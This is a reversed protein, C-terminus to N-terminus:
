QQLHALAIRIDFYGMDAKDADDLARVLMAKCQDKGGQLLMWRALFYWPGWPDPDTRQLAEGPTLQGAFLSVVPGFEDSVKTRKINKKLEEQAGAADAVARLLFLRLAVDPSKIGRELALRYDSLALDANGLEERAKGRQQLVLSAFPDVKLAEDYDAIARVYDGSAYFTDGRDSWAIASRQDRRILSSFDSSANTFDGLARYAIARKRILDTPPDSRDGVIANYERVENAYDRKDAFIGARMMHAQWSSIGDYEPLVKALDEIAQDPEDRVHLRGIELLATALPWGRPHLALASKFDALAKSPDNMEYYRGRGLYAAILDDGCNIARNYDVLAAQADRREELLRARDLFIRTRCGASELAEQYRELAENSQGIAASIQAGLWYIQALAFRDLKEKVSAVPYLAERLCESKAIALCKWLRATSIDIADEGLQESQDLDDKAGRDGLALRALGRGLYGQPKRPRQRVAENFDAVAAAFEGKSLYATGRALSILPLAQDVRSAEQIQGLADDARALSIYSVGIGAYATATQRNTRLTTEFEAVAADFQYAAMHAVALFYRISSRNIQDSGDNEIASKFDSLAEEVRNLQLHVIGRNVWAPTFKSDAKIAESFYTQAREYEGQDAAIVGLGNFPYARRIASKLALNYDITALDTKGQLSFAYGRNFLAAAFNPAAEIARSFNAIARDLDPHERQFYIVGLNNSPIPSSKDAAIAREYYSIAEASEGQQELAYGLDSYDLATPDNAIVQQFETSARTFDGNQNALRGLQRHVDAAAKGASFGNKVRDEIISQIMQGADATKADLRLKDVQMLRPDIAISVPAVVGYWTYNPTLDRWMKPDTVAAYPKAYSLSKLFDTVRSTTAQAQPTPLQRRRESLLYATVPIVIVLVVSTLLVASIAILYPKLRSGHAPSKAVPGGPAAVEAALITQSPIPPPAPTFGIPASAAEADVAAPSALQDPPLRDVENAQEVDSRSSESDAPKLPASEAASAANDTAPEDSENRIRKQAAELFPVWTTIDEKFPAPDRYIELDKLFTHIHGIHKLDIAIRPANGLYANGNGGFGFLYYYPGVKHPNMIKPRSGPLDKRTEAYELLRKKTLSSDIAARFNLAEITRNVEDRVDSMPKSNLDVKKTVEAKAATQFASSGEDASNEGM